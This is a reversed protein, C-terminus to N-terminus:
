VTVFHSGSPDIGSFIDFHLSSTIVDTYITNIKLKIRYPINKWPHPRFANDTLSLTNGPIGNCRTSAASGKSVYRPSPTIFHAGEAPIVEPHGRANAESLAGKFVVEDTAHM